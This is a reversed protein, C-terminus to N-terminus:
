APLCPTSQRCIVLWAYIFDEENEDDDEDEFDLVLILIVILIIGQNICIGRTMVMMLGSRVPRTSDTARATDSWPPLQSSLRIHRSPPSNAPM